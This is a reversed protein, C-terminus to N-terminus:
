RRAQKARWWRAIQYDDRAMHEIWARLCTAAQYCRALTVDGREISLAVAASRVVLPPVADDPVLPLRWPM